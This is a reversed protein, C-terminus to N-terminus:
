PFLQNLRDVMYRKAADDDEDEPLRLSHVAVDIATMIREQDDRICDVLATLSRALSKNYHEDTERYVYMYRVKESILSDITPAFFVLSPHFMPAFQTLSPYEPEVFSIDMLPVIQQNLQRYSFKIVDTVNNNSRVIPNLFTGESFITKMVDFIFLAVIEGCAKASYVSKETPKVFLDIDNTVYDAHCDNMFLAIQTALGGKVYIFCFEQIFYSVHGVLLIIAAFYQKDPSETMFKPLIRQLIYLPKGNTLLMSIISFRVKELRDRLNRDQKYPAISIQRFPIVGGKHFRRSRRKRQRRRSNKRKSKM